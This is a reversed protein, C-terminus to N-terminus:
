LVSEVVNISHDYVRQVMLETLGAGKAKDGKDHTVAFHKLSHVTFKKHGEKELKLMLRGWASKIAEKTYQEGNAKHLVWPGIYSKNWNWANSLQPTFIVYNEKSGKARQYRIVKVTKGEHYIERADSKKLNLIEIRRGRCAIALVIFAKIVPPALAYAANLTEISPPHNVKSKSRKGPRIDALINTDTKGTDFAWTYVSKLFGIKMQGSRLSIACLKDKLVRCVKPTMLQYPQSGLREGDLTKFDCIAIYFYQYLEKTTEALDNFRSSKFYEDLLWQLSQYEVREIRNFYQKWCQEIGQEIKCLPTEVRKGHINPTKARHCYRGKSKYTNPPLSPSSKKPPM